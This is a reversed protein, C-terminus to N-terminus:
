HWGKMRWHEWAKCPTQYRKSIYRLSWDIQSYGDLTKVKPNRMQGLGYHSGNVANPSWNSEKIILQNFCSFQKYSIIRSHAYLKLNDKDRETVAYAPVTSTMAMVILTGLLKASRTSSFAKAARDSRDSRLWSTLYRDFVNTYTRNLATNRKVQRQGMRDRQFNGPNTHHGKGDDSWLM